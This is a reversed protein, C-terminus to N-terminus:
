RFTCIDTQAITTVARAFTLSKCGSHRIRSHIIFNHKKQKLNGGNNRVIKKKRNKRTVFDCCLAFFGTDFIRNKQKQEINSIRM